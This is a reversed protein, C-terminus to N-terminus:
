SMREALAEAAELATRLDYDSMTTLDRHAFVAQPHAALLEGLRKVVADRAMALISPRVRQKIAASERRARQENLIRARFGDIFRHAEEREAPSLDRREAADLADEHALAEYIRLNKQKQDTM